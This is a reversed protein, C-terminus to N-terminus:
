DVCATAGPVLTADVSGANYEAIMQEFKEQYDMRTKNLRIMQSLQKNIRGRLKEVEVRKHQTRFRERLRDSDIQSLDIMQDTEFYGSVAVMDGTPMISRDLLDEIEERVDSPDVSPALTKIRQAIINILSCIGRFENAAADPLIAKYRKFINGARQLYEGKTKDNIM